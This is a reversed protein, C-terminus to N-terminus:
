LPPRVRDILTVTEEPLMSRIGASSLRGLALVTRADIAISARRLYWSDVALKAPLLVDRYYALGTEGFPLNEEWERALLQTPGAIGPRAELVKQWRPDLADVYEAVEPRPGLLAMDGRLVNFLQPLEDLRQSRLRQGISTVRPDTGATLPSGGATLAGKAQHMTRFKILAFTRGGRGVRELRVLIPGGDTMRIVAAIVIMPVALLVVLIVAAPRDLWRTRFLLWRSM